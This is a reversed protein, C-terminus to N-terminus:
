SVVHLVPLRVRNIWVRAIHTVVCLYMSVHMCVYICERPEKEERRAGSIQDGEHRSTNALAGPRAASASPRGYADGGRECRRSSGISGYHHPLNELDTGWRGGEENAHGDEGRRQQGRKRKRKRKRKRGRRGRGSKNGDGAGAGDWHTSVVNCM